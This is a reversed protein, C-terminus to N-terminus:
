NEIDMSSLDEDEIEYKIKKKPNIDYDNETTIDTEM